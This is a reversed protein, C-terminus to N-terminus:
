WGTSPHPHSRKPAAEVRRGWGPSGAAGLTVAHAGGERWFEGLQRARPFLARFDEGGGWAAESAEGQVAERGVLWITEWLSKAGIM